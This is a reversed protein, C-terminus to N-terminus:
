SNRAGLFITSIKPVGFFIGMRYRARLFPSKFGYFHGRFIPWNQPAGFIIWLIKMGWFIDIKKGGGGGM